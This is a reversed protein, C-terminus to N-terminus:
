YGIASGNGRSDFASELIGAETRHVASLKAVDDEVVDHGKEKLAKIVDPSFRRPDVMLKNPLFQHHVRGAQLAEDLNFGSVLVRYLAQFVASIIRPGGRAGLALVAKGDKTVITPSMSSLPRKQPQVINGEGQILGFMNPEDPRTTFDDMENNLSIGFNHSFLGSGFNGNLTTTISIANGLKDMVTYHTTETSEKKEAGPIEKLPALTVAEGYNITNALEKITENSLLYDVPNKHFDPDGLHVRGRFSRSLIEGFLHYELASLAPFDKTKRLETLKLASAIVVGGSSPPPMLYVKHGEYDTVIPELWRVEYDALDKETIVGKLSTITEVIDKAVEGKYFGDSGKEKILKLANALAPQKFYDGPLKQKKDEDLFLERGRDNLRSFNSALAEVMDRNIRIGKEALEIAPEFLQAWKLKGHKKHIAYLGAIVGPVGVAYPGNISADKAKDKYFSPTFSSPATERFDLAEVKDGVKIMAFGGGGLSGSQPHSVALALATAVAVDAINGGSKAIQLGAWNAEESQSSLVMNQSQFPASYSVASLLSLTILTFIFLRKM